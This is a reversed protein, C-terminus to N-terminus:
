SILITRKMVPHQNQKVAVVFLTLNAQHSEKFLGCGSGDNGTAAIAPDLLQTGRKGTM